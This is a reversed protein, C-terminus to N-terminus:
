NSYLWTKINTRMHAKVLLVAAAPRKAYIAIERANGCNISIIQLTTRIARKSDAALFPSIILTLWLCATGNVLCLLSIKPSLMAAYKSCYENVISHMKTYTWFKWDPFMVATKVMEEFYEISLIEGGVHWRFYKHAKRRSIYYRIGTFFKDMHEKAIVTNRARADMVNKYQINAKVDYCLGSCHSCNGCTIIPATSVNHVRGIKRNGKSICIEHYALGPNSEFKESYANMTSHINKVYKSITEKSYM